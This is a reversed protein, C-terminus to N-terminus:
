NKIKKIAKELFNHNRRITTKHTVKNNQLTGIDSTTLLLTKRTAKYPRVTCSLCEALVNILARPIPQIKPEERPRTLVLVLGASISTNIDLVLQINQVNNSYKLKKGKKRVIHKEIGM